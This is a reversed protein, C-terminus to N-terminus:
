LREGYRMIEQLAKLKHAMAIQAKIQARCRRMKKKENARKALGNKGLLTFNTQKYNTILRKLKTSSDKMNKLNQIYVQNYGKRHIEGMLNACDDVWTQSWDDYSILGLKEADIGWRLNKFVSVNGFWKVALAKYWRGEDKTNMLYTNLADQTAQYNKDMIYQLKEYKEPDQAKIMALGSKSLAKAYERMFRISNGKKTRPLTVVLGGTMTRKHKVERGYALTIKEMQSIDLGMQTFKQIAKNFHRFLAGESIKHKEPRIHINVGGPQPDTPPSKQQPQKEPPTNEPPPYVNTEQVDEQSAGSGGVSGDARGIYRSRTKVTNGVRYSEQEYLYPIGKITKTVQYM